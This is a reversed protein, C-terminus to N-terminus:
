QGSAKLKNDDFGREKHSSEYQKIVMNAFEILKDRDKKLTVNDSGTEFYLYLALTEIIKDIEEHSMKRRRLVPKITEVSDARVYKVDDIMLTEPKM